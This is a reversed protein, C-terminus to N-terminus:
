ISSLLANTKAAKGSRARGGLKISETELAATFTQPSQKLARVRKVYALLEDDSMTAVLPNDKM